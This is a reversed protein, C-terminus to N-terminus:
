GAHAVEPPVGNGVHGNRAALARALPEPLHDPREHVRGALRWRPFDQAFTRVTMQAARWAEVKDRVESFAILAAYADWADWTRDPTYVPGLAARFEPYRVAGVLEIWAGHLFDCEPVPFHPFTAAPRRAASARPESSRRKRSGSSAGDDSVQDM